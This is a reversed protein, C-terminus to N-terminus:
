VFGSREISGKWLVQISKTTFCKRSEKEIGGAIGKTFNGCM